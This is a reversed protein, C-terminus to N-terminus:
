VGDSEEFQLEVRRQGDDILEHLPRAREDQGVLNTDQKVVVDCLVCVHDAEAVLVALNAKFGFGVIQLVEDTWDEADEIVLPTRVLVAM